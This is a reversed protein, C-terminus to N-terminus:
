KNYRKQASIADWYDHLFLALFVCVCPFGISGRFGAGAIDVVWMAIYLLSCIGLYLVFRTSHALWRHLLSSTDTRTYSLQFAAVIAGAMLFGLMSLVAGQDRLQISSLDEKLLPVLVFFFLMVVLINKITVEILFRKMKKYM